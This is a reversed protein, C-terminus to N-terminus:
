IGKFVLAIDIMQHQVALIIEICCFSTRFAAHAVMNETYVVAAPLIISVRSAVTCLQLGVTFIYIVNEQAFSVICAVLQYIRLDFPQVAIYGIVISHEKDLLASTSHRIRIRHRMQKFIYSHVIHYEQCQIGISHQTVEVCPPDLTRSLYAASLAYINYQVCFLLGRIHIYVQSRADNKLIIVFIWLSGPFVKFYLFYLYILRYFDLFKIRCSQNLYVKLVLVSIQFILLGEILSFAM